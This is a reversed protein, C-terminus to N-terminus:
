VARTVLTAVDLQFSGDSELAFHGAVEAPMRGQLLRIATVLPEPTAMRTVWSRFDLRIREEIVQEVVFGADTLAQRWQPITRNRLHGPDRMLELTQLWTDQLPIPPAVVDMFIGAGGPRVVRRAEVMAKCLWPWHHASYRSLVWDFEGDRCPLSEAVGERTVINALGRSEAEARVQELMAPSLDVAVVERCHPAAAYAVHGGGCGVDVARGGPRAALIGALRRLDEGQAHVASDVYARAKGGFQESVLSKHQDSM